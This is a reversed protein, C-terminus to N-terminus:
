FIWKAGVSFNIEKIHSGHEHKAQGFLRFNKSPKYDIGGGCYFRSGSLRGTMTEHNIVAKEKGLFEHILGAKLYPQFYKHNETGIAFRKGFVAGLRGTLSNMDKQEVKMGNSASFTGGHIWYYAIQAQPELFLYDNGNNSEDFKIKRGGELSVGLGYSSRKDSVSNGNLMHTRLTHKYWDITGVLDSYWGKEHVWTGYLGAGASNLRGKGGWNGKAHQNAHGTRVFLGALWKGDDRDIKKDFGLSAGYTHQTFHSNRLGDLKSKDAFARAWAGSNEGYRVEGLRERLDTLQANWLAYHGALGSFTVEMEGSPSLPPNLITPPSDPEEPDIKDSRVLRWENAKAQGSTEEEVSGVKSVSARALARQRYVPIARHEVERKELRYLYLGQDVLGSETNVSYRSQGKEDRILYNVMDLPPELGEAGPEVVITVKYDGKAEGTVWIQDTEVDKDDTINVKLRLVANEGIMDGDVVLHHYFPNGKTDTAHALDLIGNKIELSNVYSPHYYDGEYHIPKVYWIPHSDETGVLAVKITGKDKYPCLGEHIDASGKWQAKGSLVINVAGDSSATVGGLMTSNGGLKLNLEAKDSVEAVTHTKLTHAASPAHVHEHELGSISLDGAFNLDVKASQSIHFIGELAGSEASIATVSSEGFSELLSPAELHLEKAKITLSGGENALARENAQITLKDSNLTTVGGELNRVGAYGSQILVNEASDFTLNSHRNYLGINAYVWAKKTSISAKAGLDSIIGFDWSDVQLDDTKISFVAKEKIDIGAYSTTILTQKNDIDIKGAGQYIGYALGEFVLNTDKIELSTKGNPNEKMHIAYVSKESFDGRDVLVGKGQIITQDSPRNEETHQALFCTGYEGWLSGGGVASFIVAVGDDIKLSDGPLLIRTVSHETTFDYNERFAEESQGKQVWDEHYYYDRLNGDIQNWHLAKYGHYDEYPLNGFSSPARYDIAYAAGSLVFLSIFLPIQKLNTRPNKM